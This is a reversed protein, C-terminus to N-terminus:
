KSLKISGGKKLCAMADYKSGYASNEQLNVPSKAVFLARLKTPLREDETSNASPGAAMTTFYIRHGRTTLCAFQLKKSAHSPIVSISSVTVPKHTQLIEHGMPVSTGQAYVDKCHAVKNPKGCADAGLDYVQFDDFM